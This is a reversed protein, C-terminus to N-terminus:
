TAKSAAGHVYGKRLTPYERPIHKKLRLKSQLDNGIQAATRFDSRSAIYTREADTLPSTIEILAEDASGYLAAAVLAYTSSRFAVRNANCVGDISSVHQAAVKNALAPFHDLLWPTPMKALVYDSVNDHKGRRSTRLGLRRAQAQIRLAVQVTPLPCSLDLLGMSIDAYRRTSTTLDAREFTALDEACLAEEPFSFLDACQTTRSLPTEHKTCWSVGPVQHSRRWYSFGWFAQDETVCEHCLQARKSPLGMGYQKITNRDDHHAGCGEERVARFLPILTHQQILVDLSMQSAQALWEIALRTPQLPHRSAKVRIKMEYGSAIGNLRAVRGLYGPLFEDPLLCPMHM